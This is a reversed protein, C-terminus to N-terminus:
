NWLYIPEKNTPTECPSQTESVSTSKLYRPNQQFHGLKGLPILWCIIFMLCGVRLILETDQVRVNGLSM